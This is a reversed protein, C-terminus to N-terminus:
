GGVVFSGPQDAPLFHGPYLADLHALLLDYSLEAPSRSLVVLSVMDGGDDRLASARERGFLRKLIGM